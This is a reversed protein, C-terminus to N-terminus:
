NILIIKGPKTVASTGDSYKKDIIFYYVSNAMGKFDAKDLDVQMIGQPYSGLSKERVLRYGPTFMLFKIESAAKEVTVNMKIDDTGPKAPNPYPIPVVGATMTATATAAGGPTATATASAQPTTTYTATAQQTPSQTATNVPTVPTNSPSVQETATATFTQTYTYTQTVSVM